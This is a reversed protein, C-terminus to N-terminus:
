QFQWSTDSPHFPPCSFRRSFTTIDEGRNGALEALSPSGFGGLVRYNWKNATCRSSSSNCTHKSQIQYKPPNLREDGTSGSRGVRFFCAPGALSGAPVRPRVVWFKERANKNTQTGAFSLFFLSNLSDRHTRFCNSRDFRRVQDSLTSNENRRPSPSPFASGVLWVQHEM